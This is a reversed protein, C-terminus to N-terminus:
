PIMLEFDDVGVNFHFRKEGANRLNTMARPLQLITTSNHREEERAGVNQLGPLDWGRGEEM